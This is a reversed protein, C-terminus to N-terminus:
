SGLLGPKFQEHSTAARYLVTGRPQTRLFIWMLAAGVLMALSIFQAISMGTGFLGPEDVRVLELLFRSIPHLTMLWALTEGDRRRYPYVALLFGCLVVGDIASYLQTPHTPLALERNAGLAWSIKGKGQVRLEVRQKPGLAILLDIAEAANRM